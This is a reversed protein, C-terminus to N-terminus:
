TVNLECDSWSINVFFNIYVEAKNQSSCINFGSERIYDLAIVQM